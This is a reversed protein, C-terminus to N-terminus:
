SLAFLVALCDEVIQQCRRVIALRRTRHNRPHARVIRPLNVRHAAAEAAASLIGHARAQSIKRGLTNATIGPGSIAGEMIQALDLVGICVDGETMERIAQRVRARLHQPVRDYSPPERFSRLRPRVLLLADAESRILLVGLGMGKLTNEDAVSIREECILVLHLCEGRNDIDYLVQKFLKYTAETVKGTAFVLHEMGQRKGVFEPRRSLSGWLATEQATLRAPVVWGQGIYYEKAKAIL